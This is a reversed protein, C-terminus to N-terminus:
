ALEALRGIASEHQLSSTVVCTPLGVGRIWRIKVTLKNVRTVVGVFRRLMEDASKRSMKKDVRNLVDEIAERTLEVRDGKKFGNM